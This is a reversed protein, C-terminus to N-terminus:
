SLLNTLFVFQEVSLQEARKDLIKENIINANLFSRLANRLTKRRQNFGSKVITFFLKEDCNLEKVDNRIFRVVGSKVQPPPQFAGPHVTFLYEIKYFAQLLVSLIGYEKSGPPCAIRKAVERQFMGVVCDIKNRNDLVRFMIQSSINYPFNGIINFKEPIINKLDAELFDALVFKNKHVSYHNKLYEISENDIDMALFVKKQKELIYKTLVGMGPGVEILAEDNSKEFYVMVIKQAINEDKLFHQGLYKKAKVKM